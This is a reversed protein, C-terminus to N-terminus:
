SRWRQLLSLRVVALPGVTPQSPPPPHPCSGAARGVYGCPMSCMWTDSPGTGSAQTQCTLWCSRMGGLSPSRMRRGSGGAAGAARGAALGIRSPALAAAAVAAAAATVSGSAAKFRKPCSECPQATRPRAAGVAVAGQLALTSPHSAGSPAPRLAAAAPLAAWCDGLM